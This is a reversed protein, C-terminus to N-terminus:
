LKTNKMYNHKEIKMKVNLSNRLFNTKIQLKASYNM